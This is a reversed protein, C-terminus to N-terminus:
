KITISTADLGAPRLSAHMSLKTKTEQLTVQDDILRSAAICIDHVHMHPHLSQCMERQRGQKKCQAHEKHWPKVGCIYIAEEGDASVCYTKSVM